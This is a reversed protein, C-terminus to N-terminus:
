QESCTLYEEGQDLVYDYALPLLEERRPSRSLGAATAAGNAM